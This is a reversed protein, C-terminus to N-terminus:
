EIQEDYQTYIISRTRPLPFISLLGHGRGCTRPETTLDPIISNLFHAEKMCRQPQEWRITSRYLTVKTVPWFDISKVLFSDLCHRISFPFPPNPSSFLTELIQPFTLYHPMPTHSNWNLTLLPDYMLCVLSCRTSSSHRPLYEVIHVAFSIHSRCTLSSIFPSALHTLMLLSLTRPHPITHCPWNQYVFHIHPHRQNRLLPLIQNHTTHGACLARKHKIMQVSVRTSTTSPLCLIKPFNVAWFFLTMRPTFLDRDRQSHQGDVVNRNIWPVYEDIEYGRVWCLEDLRSRYLIYSTRVTTPVVVWELVELRKASWCVRGALLPKRELNESERLPWHWYIHPWDPSEPNQSHPIAKVRAHSPRFPFLFFPIQLLSLSSGEVPAFLLEPCLLALKSTLWHRKLNCM